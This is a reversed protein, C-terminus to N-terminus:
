FLEDLSGYRNYFVNAMIDAREAISALTTKSFGDEEIINKVADMLDKELSFKTRRPKRKKKEM